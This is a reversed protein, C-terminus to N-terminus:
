WVFWWFLFTVVCGFLLTIILDADNKSLRPPM